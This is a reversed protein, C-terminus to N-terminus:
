AQGGKESECLSQYLPCTRSLEAHTGCAIVQGKELVVIRDCLAASKMDHTVTIVTRGESVKALLERVRAENLADLKSSAEDLLLFEPKRLLTRALAIRQAEGGSLPAGGEKLELDLGLRGPLADENLGVENLVARLEEDSVPDPVGYLLNDRLTGKVIQIDQQLYAFKRRWSSLSFEAASKGCYFIEGEDPTYFRELLLLLTSKGAGSPGVVATRSGKEFSLHVNRLVDEDGYRFSLARLRLAVPDTEASPLASSATRVVEPRSCSSPSADAICADTEGEIKLLDQVRQVSGQAGKISLWLNTVVQLSAFIGTAFLYYGFWSGFDLEGNRILYAGYLICFTDHLVSFAQDILDFSIGSAELAFQLRNYKRIVEKGRETEYDEQAFSKIVPINMLIGAMYQTLSAFRRRSRFTLNYNIRGTVFKILLFVPLLIYLTRALQPSLEFAQRFYLWIGYISSLFITCVSILVGALGDADQTIRSILERPAIRQYARLPLSVSHEFLFTRLRRSAASESRGRIYFALRGVLFSAVLIGIGELISTQDLEGNFYRTQYRPFIASVRTSILDVVVALGILLWPLRSRRLLVFFGKWSGKQGKLVSGRLHRNEREELQKIQEEIRRDTDRVPTKQSM